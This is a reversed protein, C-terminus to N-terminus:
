IQIPIELYTPKMILQGLKLRKFKKLLANKFLKALFSPSKKTQINNALHNVSFKNDM